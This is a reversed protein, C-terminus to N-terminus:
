PLDCVIHHTFPFFLSDKHTLDGMAMVLGMEIVFNVLNIFVNFSQCGRMSVTILECMLETSVIVFGVTQMKIIATFGLQRM